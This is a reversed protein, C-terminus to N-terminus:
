KQQKENFLKLNNFFDSGKCFNHCILKQIM